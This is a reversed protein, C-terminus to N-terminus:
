EREHNPALNYPIWIPGTSKYDLETLRGLVTKKLCNLFEYHATLAKIWSEVLENVIELLM